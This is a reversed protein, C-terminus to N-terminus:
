KDYLHGCSCRTPLENGVAGGALIEAAVRAPDLGLDSAARALSENGRCCSDIRYSSLVPLAAPYYRLIDNVSLQTDLVPIFNSM